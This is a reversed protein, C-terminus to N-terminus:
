SKTARRALARPGPRYGPVSPVGELGPVVVRAVCCPLEPWSLDVVAGGPMGVAELRARLWTLDDDFRDHQPSPTDGFCRMRSEHHTLQARAASTAEETRAENFRRDSVDDRTAAILTL